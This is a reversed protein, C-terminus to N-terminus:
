STLRLVCYRSNTTEIIVVNPSVQEIRHILSTELRHEGPVALILRVGVRVDSLLVGEYKRPEDKSRTQSSIRTVRVAARADATHDESDANSDV